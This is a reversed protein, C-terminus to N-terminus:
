YDEHFVFEVLHEIEKRVRGVDQDDGSRIADELEDILAILKRKTEIKKPLEGIPYQAEEVQEKILSKLQKISIRM